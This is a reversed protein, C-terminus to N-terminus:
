LHLTRDTHREPAGLTSTICYESNKRSGTWGQFDSFGFCSRLRYRDAVSCNSFFFPPTKKVGLCTRVGGERERGHPGPLWRLVCCHVATSQRVCVCASACRPNRVLLHQFRPTNQEPICVPTGKLLDGCQNGCGVGQPVVLCAPRLLRPWPLSVPVCSKMKGEGSEVEKQPAQEQNKCRATSSPELPADKEKKGTTSEVRKTREQTPGLFFFVEFYSCVVVSRTALVPQEHLLLFLTTKAGGRVHRRILLSPALQQAVDVGTWEDYTGQAKSVASNFVCNIEAQKALPQQM